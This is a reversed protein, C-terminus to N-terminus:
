PRDQNDHKQNHIRRSERNLDHELRARERASLGDGSERMRKEQRRIRQEEKELRGAERRTLEGSQVGQRIRQQQNQQRQNINGGRNHNGNQAFSVISLGCIIFFSAFIVVLSKRMLSEELQNRIKINL